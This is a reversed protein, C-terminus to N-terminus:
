APSELSAPTDLEGLLQESPMERVGGQEIRWVRNCQRIVSPNRTAVVATWPADHRLVWAIVEESVRPDLTDLAGYILLLRPQGALARALLLRRVQEPPLPM